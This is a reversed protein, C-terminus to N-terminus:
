WDRLSLAVGSLALLRRASSAGSLQHVAAPGQVGVLLNCGLVLKFSGLSKSKRAVAKFSGNPQQNPSCHDKEKDFFPEPRSNPNFDNSKLLASTPSSQLTLMAERRM